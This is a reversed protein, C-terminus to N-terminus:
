HIAEVAADFDNHLGAVLSLSHRALVGIASTSDTLKCIATLQAVLTETTSLHDLALCPATAPVAASFSTM